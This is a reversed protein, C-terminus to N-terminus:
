CCRSWSGGCCGGRFAIVDFVKPNFDKYFLYGVVGLGILIPYIANSTKIRGVPNRASRNNEPM